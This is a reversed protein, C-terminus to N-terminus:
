IYTFSENWGWAKNGCDYLRYFKNKEMIEQETLEKDYYSMKILKHKQFMTRHYRNNKNDIYYFNPHTIHTLKFGLKEYMGGDFIREDSYSLISKPNYNRIFYKFCKNAGGVIIHGKKNVYRVLEWEYKKDFRSKSFTMLSVLLDDYYLGVKVSAPAAGQLHNNNQFDVAEKTEVLKIETKRAFIKKNYKGLKTNIISKVIDNKYYWEDEYIHYVRIGKEKFYNTKKVHYNNPKVASSHWYLGNFEFGIKLEEIYADIEYKDKYKIGNVFERLEKEGNSDSILIPNCKPCRPIEKGHYLMDYFETNCNKCHWKYELDNQKGVYDEFSFVPTIGIKEIREIMKNFKYRKNEQRTRQLKLPSSVGYKEEFNKKFSDKVSQVKMINDTGYKELITKERTEKAKLFSEETRKNSIEKYFKSDRKPSKYSSRDLNSLKCKKCKFDNEIFKHKKRNGVEGCNNCIFFINDHYSCSSIIENESKNKDFDKEENKRNLIKVIKM